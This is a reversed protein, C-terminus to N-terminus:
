YQTIKTLSNYDVMKQTFTEQIEQVEVDGVMYSAEINPITLQVTCCNSHQTTAIVQVTDTRVNGDLLYQYLAFEGVAIPGMEQLNNHKEQYYETRRLINRETQLMQPQTSTSSSSPPSFEINAIEAMIAKHLRSVLQAKLGSHSIKRYRLEAKLELVKLKSPKLARLKKIRAISGVDAPLHKDIKSADTTIFFELHHNGDVKLRYKKHGQNNTQIELITAFWQQDGDDYM